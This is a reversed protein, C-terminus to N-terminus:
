PKKRRLVGLAVLAGGILLMYGPEPVLTFEPPTAFTGSMSIAGGPGGTQTLSLIVSAGNTTYTGLSDEFIGNAAIELDNPSVHGESTTVVSFTFRTNNTGDGWSIFFPTPGLPINFTVPSIVTPSPIPTLGIFDGFTSTVIGQPMATISTASALNVGTYSVITDTFSISGFALVSASALSALGIMLVIVALTRKM